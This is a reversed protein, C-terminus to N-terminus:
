EDDENEYRTVQSSLEDYLIDDILHRIDENTMDGVYYLISPSLSGTIQVQEFPDVDYQLSKLIHHIRDLVNNRSLVTENYSKGEYESAIYKYRFLNFRNTSHVEIVDDARGDKYIFFLKLRLM